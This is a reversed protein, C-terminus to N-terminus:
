KVIGIIIMIIIITVIEIMRARGFAQVVVNLNQRNHKLLDTM